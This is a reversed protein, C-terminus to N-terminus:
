EDEGMNLIRHILDSEFGRGSAFRFLKAKKTFSNKEILSASKNLILDSCVQFYAEEDIQEIAKGITDSSIGKQRLTYSIKIKGWHNLKFKDKVFHIAFRQDDLFKEKRLYEIIEEADADAVHWERLKERIHGSCQEQRSCLAAARHLAEKYDKGKNKSESLDKKKM